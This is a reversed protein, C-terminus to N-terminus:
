IPERNGHYAEMYKRIYFACDNSCIEMKACSMQNKRFGGFRCFRKPLAKKLADSLRNVVRKSLAGHHNNVLTGILQYNNSDMIDIRKHSINIAYLSWYSNRIVPVIILQTNVTNIHRLFEGFNSALADASFPEKCGGQEIFDINLLFQSLTPAGERMCIEEIKENVQTDTKGMDAPLVLSLSLYHQINRLETLPITPCLGLTRINVPQAQDAVDQPAESSHHGLDMPSIAQDPSKPRGRNQDECIPGKGKDSLKNIYCTTSIPHLVLFVVCSTISSGPNQCWCRLSNSLAHFVAKSRDIAAVRDLDAAVWVDSKPIYFDTTPLLLKSMLIMIFFGVAGPDDKRNKIVEIIMKAIPTGMILQATRPTIQIKRDNDISICMTDANTRDMLFRILNPKELGDLTM